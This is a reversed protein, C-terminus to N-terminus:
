APPAAAQLREIMRSLADVSAFNEPRIEEPPIPLHFRDELAALLQIIAVSDLDCEALPDAGEATAQDPLTERVAAVVQARVTDSDELPDM